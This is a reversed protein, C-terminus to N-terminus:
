RLWIGFRQQTREIMRPQAVVEAQRVQTMAEVDVTVAHDIEILYNTGYAYFAAERTAATWCSVPGALNIRRPAVPTTGGFAADNLMELYERV